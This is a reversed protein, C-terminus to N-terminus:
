KAMHSFIQIKAARFPIFLTLYVYVIYRDNYLLGWMLKSFSHNHNELEM